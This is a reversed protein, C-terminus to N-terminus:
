NLLGWPDIVIKDSFDVNEILRKDNHTLVVVNAWSIFNKINLRSRNQDLPDFADVLYHESILRRYLIEGPSETTVFTDPKFSLGVIGISKDTHKKVKNYLIENQDKNIKDTAKIHVADLGLRDSLNIFAWTDRPFCTGGFALGSKIYYPSIRKDHGLAKTVRSSECGLIECVNGLFNAFSIKMTIYANLSVKTVEAELPTM